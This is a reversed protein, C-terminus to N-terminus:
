LVLIIKPRDVVVFINVKRCHINVDIDLYKETVRLYIIKEDFPFIKM